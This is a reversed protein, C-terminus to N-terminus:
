RNRFLSVVPDTFREILRRDMTIIEATGDMQEILPLMKHYTSELGGPFDVAVTYAVSGDQMRQPVSAVNAVIGRLIGYEMYLFGNLRVNVAQGAAVKGFGASPVKMRGTVRSPAEPTVNAMVDGVNVHQGPSWYDQLSVTGESPSIIAYTDLWSAVQAKLQCIQQRIQSEHSETESERQLDLEVLQQESQLIGLSASELSAEFGAATNLKSLFVKRSAEYEAEPIAKKVYLISDREITAREM